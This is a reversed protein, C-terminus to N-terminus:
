LHITMEDSKGFPKGCIPCKRMRNYIRDEICGKCFTHGCTKIVMNKFDKKCVRCLVMERLAQEEKSTENEPQDKYMDCKATADALIGQIRALEVELDSVRNRRDTYAKDKATVLNHLQEVQQKLTDSRRVMDNYSMELKKNEATVSANTQKLDALQRDLNTALTRSSAEAEKLQSIIESSKINQARSKSLVDGKFDGDKRAMFYKQDAKSKEAILLAVREEWAVQDMVKKHALTQFKKMMTALAPLETEISDYDKTLKKCKDRLQELTLADIEPRETMDVDEGESPQKRRLESELTNIREDAITLYEKLYNSATKEQEKSAKLITVDAHFEDRLVRVRALNTDSQHLQEELEAILNQAESEVKRRSSEREAELKEASARLSKNEAELSDIKKVFDEMQIKFLKFVETRSYDEDTLTCLRTQLSTLQALTERNQTLAVELQKKQSEAVANAERLASQLGKSNTGDKASGDEHDTSLAPRLAVHHLAQQELKQVQTSKARDLRREAKMYRLTAVNLQESISAKDVNLRDLKVLYEKQHALLANIQRELKAIDPAVPSRTENLNNLIEQVVDKIATTKDSLHSEFEKFDKFDTQSPYPVRNDQGPQYKVVGRVILQMEQLLQIFWADLIRIHDDHYTSHKKAEDLQTELTTKERKYELM